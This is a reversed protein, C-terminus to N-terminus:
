TIGKDDNSEGKQYSVSLSLSPYPVLLVIYILEKTDLSFSLSFQEM